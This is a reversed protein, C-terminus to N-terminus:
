RDPIAPVHEGAYEVTFWMIAESSGSHYHTAQSEERRLRKPKPARPLGIPLLRDGSPRGPHQKKDQKSESRTCVNQRM